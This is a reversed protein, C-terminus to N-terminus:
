KKYIEILAEELDPFTFEFAHQKLVTPFVRQGRLLLEDGMEGLILKIPWAPTFMFSPRHLVKGLTKALETQTVAEPAVINVPGSIEKNNILFEVARILDTLTVWSFPQHGTGIRGGMFFLFPLRLQKLVGGNKALVVGFRMNVVRVGADKAVQTALEWQRGVLSLFDHAKTFDISTNEDFAEPLGIAACKQLGYVGIASANLLFPSASGLKACLTSIKKTIKVRSNIIEQKQKDSWLKAGINAGALNIILNASKITKSNLAEYTIGIVKQSFVNNIKKLSRGVIIVEHNNELFHRTLAQGIFGTGGAIIIKM